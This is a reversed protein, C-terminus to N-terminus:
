DFIKHSLMKTMRKEMNKQTVQNNEDKFKQILNDIEKQEAEKVRDVMKM